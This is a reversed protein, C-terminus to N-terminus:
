GLDVPIRDADGTGGGELREVRARLAIVEDRLTDFDKRGVFDLRERTEDVFSETREQARRMTDRVAERARDPTLEGRERMDDITEEIAEKLAMLIGLGSRIGDRVTERPGQQRERESSGEM